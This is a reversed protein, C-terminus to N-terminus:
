DLLSPAQAGAALITTDAKYVTGGATEASIIDGKEELLQTVNGKSGTIFKVGLKEAERFASMLAGRAFVLGAETKKFRGKWDSFFGMLVGEPMIARFAEPTDLWEFDARPDLM